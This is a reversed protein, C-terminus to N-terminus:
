TRLRHFGEELGPLTKLNAMGHAGGTSGAHGFAGGTSGGGLLSLADFGRWEGAGHRADEDREDALGKV